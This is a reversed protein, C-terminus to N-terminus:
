KLIFDKDENTKFITDFAKKKNEENAVKVQGIKQKTAIWKLTAFYNEDNVLGNEYLKNVHRVLDGFSSPSIEDGYDHLLGQFDITLDDKIYKGNQGLIDIGFMKNLEKISFLVDDKNKKPLKDIKAKIALTKNQPDTVDNIEGVTKKDNSSSMVKDLLSSFSNAKNNEFIKKGTSDYNQTNIQRTKIEM